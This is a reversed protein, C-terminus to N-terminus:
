TNRFQCKKKTNWKEKLTNHTLILTERANSWKILVIEKISNLYFIIHKIKKIYFILPSCHPIATTTLHSTAMTTSDPTPQQQPDIPDHHHSNEMTTSTPKVTPRYFWSPPPLHSGHCTAVMTTPTPKFLHCHNKNHIRRHTPLYLLLAAHLPFLFLSIFLSSLSLLYFFNNFFSNYKNNRSFYFSLHLTLQSIFNYFLYLLNEITFPTSKKVDSALIRLIRSKIHFSKFYIKTHIKWIFLSFEVYLKGFFFEVYNKTIFFLVLVHVLLHM